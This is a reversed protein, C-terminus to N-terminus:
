GLVPGALAAHVRHCTQETQRFTLTKQLGDMQLRITATERLDQAHTKKIDAGAM